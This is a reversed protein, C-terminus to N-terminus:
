RQRLEKEHALWFNRCDRHGWFEVWWEGFSDEVEFDVKAVREDRKLGCVVCARPATPVGRATTVAMSTALEPVRLQREKAGAAANAANAAAVVGRLRGVLGRWVAVAEAAEQEERASQTRDVAALKMGRGGGGGAPAASISMGQALFKDRHWRQKRGAVLRAAVTALALYGRLFAFTAPSSIVRQYSQSSPPLGQLPKLLSTSALDLLRPFLSLLIAPPPINTPPPGPKDTADPLPTPLPQSSPDSDTGGSPPKDEAADWDQWEWDSAATPNPAPSPKPKNKPPARAAAPKTAGPVDKFEDWEDGFGDHKDPQRAAAPSPSTNARESKRDKSTSEHSKPAAPHSPQHGPTAAHSLVLGPPQKRPPDPATDLSLLDLAPQPASPQLAASPATGTEFDGFEDDDDDDGAGNEAEFDADFLVNPDPNRAPKPPSRTSADKEWLPQQQGSAPVSGEMSLDLLTNSLVDPGSPTAVRAQAQEAVQPPPGPPAVEFDGWAEDDDDAQAAEQPASLSLARSQFGGLSGLRGTNDQWGDSSQTTSPQPLPQPRGQALPASPELALLSFPDSAAPTTAAAPQNQQPTSTQPANGFAAFLDASM